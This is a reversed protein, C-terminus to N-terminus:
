SSQHSADWLVHRINIYTHICLWAILHRWCLLVGGEGRAEQLM